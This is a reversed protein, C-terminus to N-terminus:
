TVKKKCVAIKNEWPKMFVINYSLLIILVSKQFKNQKDILIHIYFTLYKITEPMTISKKETFSSVIFYDILNVITSLM